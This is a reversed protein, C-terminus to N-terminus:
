NEELQEFDEELMKLTKVDTNKHPILEFKIGEWIKTLKEIQNQMKAEQKSQDTIEEISDKFEFMKLNWITSLQLNNDM